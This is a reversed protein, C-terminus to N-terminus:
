VESITWSKSPPKLLKKTYIQEMQTLETKRKELAKMRKWWFEEYSNQKTLRYYSSKPIRLYKRIQLHHDPFRNFLDKLTTFQRETYWSGSRRRSWELNCLTNFLLMSPSGNLDKKLIEAIEWDLNLNRELADDITNEDISWLLKEREKREYDILEQIKLKKM